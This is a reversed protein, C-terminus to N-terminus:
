LSLLKDITEETIIQGHIIVSASIENSFLKKIGQLDEKTFKQCGFAVLNGEKTAAYGQITVTTAKRVEEPTAKRVKSKNVHGRSYHVNDGIIASIQYAKNMDPSHDWTECVYDGVEFTEKYVPTFWEPSGEVTGILYSRGSETFYEERTLTLKTGAKDTPLDKALIYHSIEVQLGLEELTVEKYGKYDFIDGKSSNSSFTNESPCYYHAGYYKSTIKEGLYKELRNYDEETGLYVVVENNLIYEKTYKM